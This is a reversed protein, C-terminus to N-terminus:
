SPIKVKYGYRIADVVDFLNSHRLPELLPNFYDSAQNFIYKNVTCYMEHHFGNTMCKLEELANAVEETVLVKNM